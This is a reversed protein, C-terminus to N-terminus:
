DEDDSSLPMGHSDFAEYGDRDIISEPLFHLDCPSLRHAELFSGLLKM